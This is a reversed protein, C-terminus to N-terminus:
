AIWWDFVFVRKINLIYILMVLVKYVQTDILYM